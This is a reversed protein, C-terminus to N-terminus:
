IKKLICIRTDYNVVAMSGVIQNNIKLPVGLVSIGETLTGINNLEIEGARALELIHKYNVLLSKGYKIIYNAITGSIERKNKKEDIKDKEDIYYSLVVRDNDKDKLAIYFNKAYIIGNLEQYIVDYLKKLSINSNAKRSINYIVKNIRENENKQTVDNFILLTGQYDNHPLYIPFGSVEIELKSCDKKTLIAESISFDKRTNKFFDPNIEGQKNDLFTVFANFEKEKLEELQYNFLECFRPNILLIRGRENLFLMAEPNSQFLPCDGILNPISSFSAIQKVLSYNPNLLNEKM